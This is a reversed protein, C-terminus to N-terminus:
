TGTVGRWMNSEGGEVDDFSEEEVSDEGSEVESDDEWAVRRASGCVHIRPPM